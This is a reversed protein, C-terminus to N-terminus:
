PAGPTGAPEGAEEGGIIRSALRVVGRLLSSPSKAEGRTCARSPMRRRTGPLGDAAAESALSSGRMTSEEDPVAAATRCQHSRRSALMTVPPV